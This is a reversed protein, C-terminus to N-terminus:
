ERVPNSPVWVKHSPIWKGNVQQGPVTIWEGSRTEKTGTRGYKSIFQPDPSAYARRPIINTSSDPIYVAESSPYAYVTGPIRYWPRIIAASLIVSSAIVAGPVWWHSSYCCYRHHWHRHHWYGSAFVTSSVMLIMAILIFVVILGKVKM